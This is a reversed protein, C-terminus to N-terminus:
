SAGLFASHDAYGCSRAVSAVSMAQEALLGKASAIRLSDLFASTTMDFVKRFDQELQTISTGARTAIERLSVQQDFDSRLHAVALKLRRYCAEAGEGNPLQRANASSGGRRWPCGARASTHVVALSSWRGFLEQGAARGCLRAMARNAAVSTRM